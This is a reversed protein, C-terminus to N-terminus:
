LMYTRNCLVKNLKLLRRIRSKPWQICEAWDQGDTELWLIAEMRITASRSNADICARILVAEIIRLYPDATNM